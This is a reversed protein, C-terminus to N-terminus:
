NDFKYRLLSELEAITFFTRRIGCCPDFLLSKRKRCMDVCFVKSCSVCDRPIEFTKAALERREEFLENLYRLIVDEDGSIDAIRIYEGEIQAKPLFEIRPKNPM